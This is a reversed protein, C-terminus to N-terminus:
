DSNAAQNFTKVEPNDDGNVLENSPTGSSEDPPLVEIQANPDIANDMVINQEPPPHRNCAGLALAPIALLILRDANRM